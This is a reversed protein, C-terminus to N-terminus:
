PDGTGLVFSLHRQLDAACFRPLHINWYLPIIWVATLEQLFRLFFHGNQATAVCKIMHEHPVSSEDEASSRTNRHVSNQLHLFSGLGKFM